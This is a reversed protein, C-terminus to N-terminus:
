GFASVREEDNEMKTEIKEGQKIIETRRSKKRETQRRKARGKQRARLTETQQRLKGGVSNNARTKRRVTM